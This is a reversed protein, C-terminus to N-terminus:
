ENEEEDNIPEADSPALEEFKAEGDQPVEFNQTYKLVFKAKEM